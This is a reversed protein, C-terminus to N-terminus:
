KRVYESEIFSYNNTTFEIFQDTSYHKDISAPDKLLLINYCDLCTDKRRNSVWPIYWQERIKKNCLTQTRNDLAFIHWCSM